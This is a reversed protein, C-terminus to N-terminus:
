NGMVPQPLSNSVRTAALLFTRDGVTSLEICKKTRIYECNSKLIRKKFKNIRTMIDHKLM